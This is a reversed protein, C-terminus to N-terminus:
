WDGSRRLVQPLRGESTPWLGFETLPPRSSEVWQPYDFRSLM